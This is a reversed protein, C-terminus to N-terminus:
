VCVSESESESYEKECMCVCFVCKKDSIIAISCVIDLSLNHHKDKYNGKIDIKVIRIMDKIRYKALGNIKKLSYHETFILVEKDFGQNPIAQM